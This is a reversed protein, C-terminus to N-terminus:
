THCRSQVNRLTSGFERWPSAGHVSFEYVDGRIRKNVHQEYNEDAFKWDRCSISCFDFLNLALQLPSAFVFMPAKARDVLSIDTLSQLLCIVGACLISVACIIAAFSNNHCLRCFGAQRVRRDFLKPSRVLCFFAGCIEDGALILGQRLSSM